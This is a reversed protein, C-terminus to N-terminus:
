RDADGAGPQRPSRIAFVIGLIAAVALLCIHAIVVIGEGLLLGGLIGAVAIMGIATFMQAQSLHRGRSRAPATAASKVGHLPDLPERESGFLQRVGDAMAARHPYLYLIAIVLGIGAGILAAWM